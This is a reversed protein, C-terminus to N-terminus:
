GALVSPAAANFNTSFSSMSSYVFSLVFINNIIVKCIHKDIINHKYIIFYYHFCLLYMAFIILLVHYYLLHKYMIIYNNILIYKAKDYTTNCLHQENIYKM